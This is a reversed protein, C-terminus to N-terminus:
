MQAIFDLEVQWDGYTVKVNMFENTECMLLFINRGNMSLIRALRVRMVGFCFFWIKKSKLM